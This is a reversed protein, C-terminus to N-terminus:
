TEGKKTRFYKCKLKVSNKIFISISFEFLSKRRELEEEENEEQKGWEEPTKRGCFFSFQKIKMAEEKKRRFTNIWLCIWKWSKVMEWDYFCLKGGFVTDLYNILKKGIRDRM